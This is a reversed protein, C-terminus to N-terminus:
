VLDAVISRRMSEPLIVRADKRVTRFVWERGNGSEFRLSKTQFGGGLKTPRLGGDFAALDLVPARLPQEWVHRYERGFMFRHFGGAVFSSDAYTLVTDTGVLPRLSAGAPTQARAPAAGPLLAAACLALLAAAHRM